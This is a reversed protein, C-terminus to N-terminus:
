KRFNESSYLGSWKELTVLKRGLIFTFTYDTNILTQIKEQRKKVHNLQKISEFSYCM